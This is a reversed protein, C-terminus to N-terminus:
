KSPHCTSEQKQYQAVKSSVKLLIVMPSISLYVAEGFIVAVSADVRSSQSLKTSIKDVDRCPAHITNVHAANSNEEKSNPLRHSHKSQLIMLFSITQYNSM